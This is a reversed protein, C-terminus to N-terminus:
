GGFLAKLAALASPDLVKSAVGVITDRQDNSITKFVDAQAATMALRAANVKDEINAYQGLPASASTDFTLSTVNGTAADAKISGKTDNPSSISLQSGDPRSISLTTPPVGSGKAKTGAATQEVLTITGATRINTTGGGTGSPDDIFSAENLASNATEQGLISQRSSPGVTTSCATLVLALPLLVLLKLRTM